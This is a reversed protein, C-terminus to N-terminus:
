PSPLKGNQVIIKRPVMEDRGAIDYVLTAIVASAQMLDEQVAHSYTDMDSHHTISGYDLPDQIFQFGPIGVDDFSQHDTGFTRKLSFATVGMDRFPALWKELLPRVTDNGELYM